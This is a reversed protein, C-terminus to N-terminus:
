GLQERQRPRDPESRLQREGEAEHGLHRLWDRLVDNCMLAQIEGFEAHDPGSEQNGMKAIQEKVQGEYHM